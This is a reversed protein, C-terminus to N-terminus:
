YNHLLNPLRVMGKCMAEVKKPDAAVGEKSIIHGLYELSQQGFSCKKQNLKLKHQQLVQLIEQLHEVHKDMTPNYILIDDFFVLV